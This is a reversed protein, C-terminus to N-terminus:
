VQLLKREDSNCNRSFEAHVNDIEDLLAAQLLLPSTFFQCLRDLAGQLPLPSSSPWLPCERPPSSGARIFLLIPPISLIFHHYRCQPPCEATGMIVQVHHHHVKFHFSTHVMGAHLCCCNLGELSGELLPPHDPCAASRRRQADTIDWPGQLRTQKNFCAFHQQEQCSPGATIGCVWESVPQRTQAAGMSHCFPRTTRPTRTAPLASTCPMSSSTPSVRCRLPAPTTPLYRCSLPVLMGGSSRSLRSSPLHTHTHMAYPM